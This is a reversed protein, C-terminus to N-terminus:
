FNFYAKFLLCFYGKLNVCQAMVTHDKPVVTRTAVARQGMNVATTRAVAFLIRQVVLISGAANLILRVARASVAVSEHNTVIRSVM